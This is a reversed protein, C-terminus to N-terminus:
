ATQSAALARPQRKVTILGTIRKGREILPSEITHFAIFPVAAMLIVLVSWRVIPHWSALAIFSLWIIPNHFLYIGYSYKAIEKFAKGFVPVQIECWQPIMFGLALCMVWGVPVDSRAHSLKVTLAYLAVLAAIALPWTFSPLTPPRRQKLIYQYALVGAVFCPGFQLVFSRGLLAREGLAAAAWVAAVILLRRTSQHRQVFLFLFPLALYMQVEYPLSWLPGLVPPHETVNMVLLLNSAVAGASPIHFRAEPEAPIRFWLMVIICVISLPYIRFFRRVYFVVFERWGNALKLRQMSMMLVLSTHVFFLLVGSRGLEAVPLGLVEVIGFTLLLHSLFVLLVAISRLADLNTSNERSLV